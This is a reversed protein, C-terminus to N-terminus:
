RRAVHKAKKSSGFPAFIGCLLAIGGMVVATTYDGMNVAQASLIVFVVFAPWFILGRLM